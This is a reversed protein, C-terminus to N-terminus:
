SAPVRRAVVVTEAFCGEPVANVVGPLHDVVDVIGYYPPTHSYHFAVVEHGEWPEQIESVDACPDGRRKSAACFLANPSPASEM